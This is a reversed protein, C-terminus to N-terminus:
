NMVFYGLLGVVLMYIIWTIFPGNERIAQALIIKAEDSSPKMGGDTPQPPVYSRRVMVWASFGVASVLLWRSDGVPIFGEAFLALGTSTALLAVFAVLNRFM